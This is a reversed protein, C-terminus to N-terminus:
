VVAIPPGRHSYLSGSFSLVTKEAKFFYPIEEHGSYLQCLFERPAVYTGFTFDCCYCHDFNHHQHTIEQNTVNYKHHCQKESLQKELHEYTHFSQFLISFLVAVTLSLSVILKNKKMRSLPLLVYFHLRMLFLFSCRQVSYNKIPYNSRCQPV